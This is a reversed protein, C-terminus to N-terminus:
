LLKQVFYYNETKFGTESLFFGKPCTRRALVLQSLFSIQLLELQMLVTIQRALTTDLSKFRVCRGQFVHNQFLAGLGHKSRM